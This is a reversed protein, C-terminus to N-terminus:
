LYIYSIFIPSSVKAYYSVIEKQIDPCTWKCNQPANNIVKRVEEYQNALTRILEKFNGKNKSEESEDNGRFALGQHVLYRASEVSTNLRIRNKRKTMDTQKHLAARISHDQNMLADCRKVAVNHFSNVEGVHIELRKKKNWSSWGDVVFADNGGQGDICDRFLYCCLCFARDLKESYELWGHYEKFWNPNFRRPAGAILKQPYKYGPQQRYPGRTLYMRRIDDQKQPNRSYQPIRKRDAPDYPLDDLNIEEPVPPTPPRPASPRPPRSANDQEQRLRLPRSSEASDFSQPAVRKLVYIDM